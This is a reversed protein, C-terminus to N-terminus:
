GAIAWATVCLLALAAAIATIVYFGRRSLKTM